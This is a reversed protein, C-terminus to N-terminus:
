WPRIQGREAKKGAGQSMLRFAASRMISPIILRHGFRVPLFYLHGRWDNFQVVTTLVIGPHGEGGTEQDHRLLSVRFDLHSDNEGLVIEHEDYALITFAGLRNGVKLEQGIKDTMFDKKTRLGFPKVMLDRIALLVRVWAPFVGFIERGVAALEELNKAPLYVCYADAYNIRKLLGAELVRGPVPVKQVLPYGLLHSRLVAFLLLNVLGLVGAGITIALSPEQLGHLPLRVPLLIELGARGLWLVGVATGFFVAGFDGNRVKGAFYFSLAAVFCLFLGVATALLYV